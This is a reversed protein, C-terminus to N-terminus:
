AFSPGATEDDKSSSHGIRASFLRVLMALLLFEGHCSGGGSRRLFFSALVPTATLSLLTDQAAASQGDAPADGRLEELGPIPNGFPSVSPDGLLTLLKREVAESM